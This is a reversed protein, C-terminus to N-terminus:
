IQCCSLVLHYGFLRLRQNLRVDDHKSRRGNSGGIIEFPIGEGKNVRKPMHCSDVSFVQITRLDMPTFYIRGLESDQFFLWVSRLGGRVAYTETAM